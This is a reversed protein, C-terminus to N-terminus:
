ESVKKIKFIEGNRLKISDDDKDGLGQNTKFVVNSDADGDAGEVKWRGTEVEQDDNPNAGDEDKITRKLPQTMESDLDDTIPEQNRRSQIDGEIIQPYDRIDTWNNNDQEQSWDGPDDTGTTDPDDELDCFMRAAEAGDFREKKKETTSIETTATKNAECKKGEPLHSKPVLCNKRCCIKDNPQFILKGNQHPYHGNYHNCCIDNVTTVLKRSFSYVHTNTIWMFNTSCM